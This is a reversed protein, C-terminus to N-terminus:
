FRQWGTPCHEKDDGELRYSPVSWQAHQQKSTSGYGAENWVYFDGVSDASNYILSSFDEPESDVPRITFNWEWMTRGPVSVQHEKNM